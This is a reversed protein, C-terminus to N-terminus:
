LEAAREMHGRLGTVCARIIPTVEALEFPKRLIAQVISGDIPVTDIDDYGTMVLVLPRSSFRPLEKAVEIGNMRPMQYDLLMVAYAACELRELAERGDGATDVQLGEQRLIEAVGERLSDNDDVVLVDRIDLEGV